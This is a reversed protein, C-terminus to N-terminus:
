FPDKKPIIDTEGPPNCPKSHGQTDALFVTEKGDAYKEIRRLENFRFDAAERTYFTWGYTGWDEPSPMRERRPLNVDGVLRPEDIRLIWVEWYNARGKILQQHYIALHRTRKVQTYKFGQKLFETKIKILEM